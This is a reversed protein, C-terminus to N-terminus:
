RISVSTNRQWVVKNEIASATLMVFVIIKAAAGAKLNFFRQQDM